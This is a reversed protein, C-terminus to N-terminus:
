APRPPLMMKGLFLITGSFRERIAFIFPRDVVFAPRASAERITVSTVAAAVTGEEDVEVFTKQLVESILLGGGAAMGTFDAADSFAIGMGLAELPEILSKEYELRFKPLYVDMESEQIGSAIEAWSAPTLSELVTHVDVDVDPLIVTMSFAQAGYALDAATFGDGRYHGIPGDRRMMRVQGAVQQGTSDFFPADHTASRGFQRTWDGEFYIANILYMVDDARIEELITEIKGMTREDVWSNIRVLSAPDMFDLGAVEADFYHRTTDFFAQEFPYGERYWISNALQMEVKPDLGRLLDILGRYSANIEPQSLGGFGLTTRMADFTEGRAGNMTMGLAMSASLPSIFINDGRETLDLARLLDFAFWNSARILDQEAMTLPRPLEDLVRPGTPSAECAPLFLLAAAATIRARSSMMTAELM